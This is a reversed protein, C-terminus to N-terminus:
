RADRAAPSLVGTSQWWHDFLAFARRRLDDSHARVSASLQLPDQGTAHVADPREDIWGDAIPPTVEPHFQLGLHPGLTFAQLAHDTHALERATDPLRRIADNHWAFWPGRMTAPGGAPEVWGIEPTRAPIVEGGAAVALAQAGFCLGLVPTGEALAVRLLALEEGIWPVSTDYVSERSGLVVIAEMGADPPASPHCVDVEGGREALWDLVLGGPANPEHEIVLISV